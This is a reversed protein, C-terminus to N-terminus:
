GLRLSAEYWGAPDRALVERYLAQHEPVASGRLFRLCHLAFSKDIWQRQTRLPQFLHVHLFLCDPPIPEYVGLSESRWFGINARPDLTGIAFHRSAENLCRQDWSSGDALFADRWWGHFDRTRTAVFGSNFQGHVKALHQTSPPYHNPTLVLDARHRLVDGMVPATVVLDADLFVVAEWDGAAWAAQMAQMKETVIRRFADSELDPREPLEEAFVSCTTDPYGRLAAEVARDCRVFWRYRERHFLEFSRRLMQFEPLVAATVVAALAVPATERSVVASASAQLEM